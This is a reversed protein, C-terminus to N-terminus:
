HYGMCATLSDKSVTRALFSYLDAQWAQDRVSMRKEVKKVCQYVNYGSGLMDNATGALAEM